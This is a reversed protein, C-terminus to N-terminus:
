SRTACFKGFARSRKSSRRRPPALICFVLTERDLIFLCDSPSHMTIHDSLHWERLYSDWWDGNPLNRKANLPNDPRVNSISRWHHMKPAPVQSDFYPHELPSVQYPSIQGRGKIIKLTLVDLYPKVTSGAENGPRSKHDTEHRLM